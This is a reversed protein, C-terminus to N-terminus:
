QLITDWSFGLIHKYNDCMEILMNVVAISSKQDNAKTYGELESVLLTMERTENHSVVAEAFRKKKTWWEKLHLAKAHAEEPDSEILQQIAEAQGKIENFSKRLYVQELIGITIICVLVILAFITRKM